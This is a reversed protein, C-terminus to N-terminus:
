SADSAVIRFIRGRQDVAYLEGSEDEGFSVLDGEFDYVSSADVAGGLMADASAAWITGSCYDGFLYTGQLAPHMVGRYAYGGVISCGDDHGYALVPATFAEVDCGSSYCEPGEVANWGFNLGGVGGPLLSVEEWAGEGVDGIYVHGGETDVSFRWPNRLGLAHVEPRFEAREQFANDPPIAYPDGADVDIRLLKGLLSDPDQGSGLPDGGSGGDGTGILLMGNADFAIMGGNHNGYPQEIVLLPRESAADASGESATFESVVTAGDDARTYNVFFRDNSAYGPHFALGLLGREGGSTVADRLDLFPREARSGDEVVRILGPQEVVYLRGPDGPASSLFVPRDFGDAVLILDIPPGADDSSARAPPSSWSAVVALALIALGMRAM